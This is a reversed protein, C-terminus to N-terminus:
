DVSKEPESPADIVETELKKSTEIKGTAVKQPELIQGKASKSVEIKKPQAFTKGRYILSDAPSEKKKFWLFRRKKKPKTDLIKARSYKTESAKIIKVQSKDSSDKKAYIAPSCISAGLSVILLLVLRRM